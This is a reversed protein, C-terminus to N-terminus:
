LVYPSFLVRLNLVSPKTGTELKHPRTSEYYQNVLQKITIVHFIHDTTYMFEFTYICESVQTHLM